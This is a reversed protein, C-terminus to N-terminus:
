DSLLRRLYRFDEETEHLTVATESLIQRLTHGYKKRARHLEMALASANLGLRAAAEPQSEDSCWRELNPRLVEWLEMAARSAYDRALHAETHVIVARAWALDFLEDPPSGAAVEDSRTDLTEHPIDGGRISAKEDRRINAAFHKLARRIFNRLTGINPDARDLLRRRDVVNIFFQQAANQADAYSFGLALLYEFVPHAYASILKDLIAPRDTPAANRLADINDWITAPWHYANSSEDVTSV